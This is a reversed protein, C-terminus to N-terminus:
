KYKSIWIKNMSFSVFVHPCKTNLYFYIKTLVFCHTCRDHTVEWFYYLTFIYEYLQHKTMCYKGGCKGWLWTYKVFGNTWNIFRKWLCKRTRDLCMVSRSKYRNTFFTGTLEFQQFFFLYEGIYNENNRKTQISWTKWM